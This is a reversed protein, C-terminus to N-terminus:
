ALERELIEELHPEGADEATTKEVKLTAHRGDLKITSVHNDFWPARHALRWRVLPETVGSLRSLWRGFGEVPGTWGALM